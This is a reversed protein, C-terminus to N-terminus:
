KKVKLVIKGQTHGTRIKEFAKPADELTMEEITPLTVTGKNLLDGIQALQNGNPQGIVYTCIIGRPTPKSPDFRELISVLRGKSKIINLSDQCTQGGITDYVLDIGDPFEKKIRDVFNERTYDIVIDAGLDKVYKHNKQSATTIIRAGAIKAFQIALSGVGGAGAHILVTEGKKLKGADFLSQWATLGVLPIAAAQAFSLKTPKKAIANADMCVYEADTGWQIKPKRCFAFVEEGVKLNSVNKGVKSIKGSADWGLVIPFEHPIASLRGECIKWDVPNVATYEIAIQAENDLPEPTPIQKLTLKANKGFEEIVIAKMFDGMTQVQM